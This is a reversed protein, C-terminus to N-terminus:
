RLNERGYILILLKWSHILTLSLIIDVDIKKIFWFELAFSTLIITNWAQKENRGAAAQPYPLTLRM